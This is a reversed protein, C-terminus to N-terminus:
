APHTGFHRRIIDLHPPYLGEPLETSAYFGGGEIEVSKELDLSPRQGAARARLTLSVYGGPGNVETDVIGADVEAHLGVEELLERALARDPSEERRIFGGPLGWRWPTRFRHDLLLLRGDDDEVLGVVGLLFHDNVTFLVRRRVARPLADWLAQTGRLLGRKLAM